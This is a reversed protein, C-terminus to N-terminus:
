RALDNTRSIHIEKDISIKHIMKFEQGNFKYFFQGYEEGENLSGNAILLSSNLQYQLKEEEGYWCCVTTPLFVVKGTKRSVAAGYVCGMGCGWRDLVFEGAFDAPQNIAEKLRTRFNRVEPTDLRLPVAIGKYITNIPYSNFDLSIIEKSVNIKPLNENKGCAYDLQSAGMSEPQLYLWEPDKVTNSFIVEGSGMSGSYLSTSLRMMREGNCDYEYLDKTSLHSPLSGIQEPTKNDTLSWMRIHDGVKRISKSNTYFVKADSSGVTTWEAMVNTSSVLLLLGLILKNM